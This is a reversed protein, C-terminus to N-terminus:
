IKRDIQMQLDMIKRKASVAKDIQSKKIASELEDLSNQLYTLLRAVVEIDEKKM